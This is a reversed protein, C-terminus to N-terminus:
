RDDELLRVTIIDPRLAIHEILWKPLTASISTLDIVNYEVGTATTSRLRDLLGKWRNQLPVIEITLRVDDGVQRLREQLHADLKASPSNM